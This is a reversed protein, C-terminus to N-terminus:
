PQVFRGDASRSHGSRMALIKLALQANFRDEQRALNMGTLTEIRSLRYRVTKPHICLEAAARQVNGDCRLYSGLTHVLSAGHDRDYDVLAGLQQSAYRDLDEGYAPELLFQVAGLDEFVVVPADPLRTAACAYAAQRAALTYHGITHVPASIGILLQRQVDEGIRCLEYGIGRIFEVPRDPMILALTDGRGGVPVRLGHQDLLRVILRILKTRVHQIRDSPAASPEQSWGPATRVSLLAVRAARPLERALQRSRVIVDAEDAIRGDLLDWVFESELRRAADAVADRRSLLAACALAAQEAAVADRASPPQGAAVVVEGWQLGGSRVPVAIALRRHADPGLLVAEAGITPLERRRPARVLQELWNSSGVVTGDASVFSVEQGTIDHLARVVADLDFGDAVVRTLRRHMELAQRTEEYRESLAQNAKVLQESVDRLRQADLARTV